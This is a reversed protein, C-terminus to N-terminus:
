NTVIKFITGGQTTVYLEGQADEGFSTLGNAGVNLLPWETQETAQGGVARFSRVFGACFDGYFYVGRIAPIAGRYVFGGTVSCAGQAHPYDLIPLTLGGPDCNSSPNFCAVGEMLRWGFNLGRGANPAPAVDIEERADQGVDGIVLDGTLRDFSFRWPNRLGLSWVEPRQTPAGFPNPIGNSCALGTEPDLRLIKGLLQALDQARNNPDGESGGDGVGAYLCRDPGFALMGGNHNAFTAHPITLLPVGSAPDAIDGNLLSRLYRAIVIDGAVNTYYIYFRGNVEYAPDFALGLLGREGGSAVLSTVDLFPVARVSGSPIDVLRIAGAQELVFVRRVDGPPATLYLPNTLQAVTQFKLAHSPPAPPLTSPQPPEGNGCGALAVIFLLVVPLRCPRMGDVRRLSRSWPYWAFGETRM